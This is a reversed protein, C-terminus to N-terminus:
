LSRERVIAAINIRRIGRRTPLQALLRLASHVSPSSCIRGV